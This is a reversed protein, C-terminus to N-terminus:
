SSAKIVRPDDTYSSVQRSGAAVRPDATRGDEAYIIVESSESDSSRHQM